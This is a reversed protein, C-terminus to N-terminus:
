LLFRIRRLAHDDHWSCSYATGADTRVKQVKEKHTGVNGLVACGIPMARFQVRRPQQWQFLAFLPSVPWVETMM